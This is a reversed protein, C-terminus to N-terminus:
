RSRPPARVVLKLSRQTGQAEIIVEMSRGTPLRSWERSALQEFIAVSDVLRGQLSVPADGERLGARAAPSNPAVAIIRLQPSPRSQEELLPFARVVTMGQFTAMARYSELAADFASRELKYQVFAEVQGGERPLLEVQARVPAAQAGQQALFRQAIWQRTAAGAPERHELRSRIFDYSPTGALQGLMEEVLRALADIRAQEVSAEATSAIGGRGVVLVETDGLIFPREAWAPPLVVKPPPAAVPPPVAAVPAPDTVPAPAPPGSRLLAWALLAGVAVLALAGAGVVAPGPWRRSPVGAPVPAAVPALVPAPPSVASVPGSAPGSSPESADVPDQNALFSLLMRSSQFTLATNCRRCLVSPDKGERLTRRERAVDILATRSTACQACRGNLVASEVRVAGLNSALVLSELLVQPCARLRVREVEPQTALERLAHEFRRAVDPTTTAVGALDLVVEGELGDFVFSWRVAELRNRLVLTTVRGEVHKEVADGSDAQAEGALAARLTQRVEDPVKEVPRGEGLKSLFAFYSAPEDDFVGEGQCHPCTAAPARGAQLPAADRECDLLREFSQKCATCQYPAYFSVVMGGGSFSRIMNLQSVVPESCRALYLRSLGSSAESLMELWARVGFSTIREVGGLELAVVGSLRKGLTQGPFSETLRGQISVVTLEGARHERLSHTSSTAAPRIRVLTDVATRQSASHSASPSAESSSVQAPAPAPAPSPAPAPVSALLPRPAASAIATTEEDLKPRRTVSTSASNRAQAAPSESLVTLTMTQNHLDCTGATYPSLEGYSYFGAVQTGPPLVGLVAEVEEETREGLVLRRGVCSVAIALAQSPQAGGSPLMESAMLAASSAGGVLRDFNAKMLQVSAGQPIDGAFTMSNKAADVALLTRVLFKEEDGPQRLALPFLLGTAPLGSAKDGLYQKYLELAPKGDLEHLVNGESRTVKRQPGFADWGGKSGHSILLHDGYLGVAVVLGSQVKDRSLVWTRQFRSGDGALGGTVVVSPDLVSNFGRVLESGNVKLGESLVFVARLGQRDLKRALAEGASFSQAADTVSITASALETHAFRVVAVSLSHDFVETGSIEGSTSCGLLQSQPFARALETLPGPEDLLETAGFALVLTRESDLATPLPSTWTRRPLLYACSAVQFVEEASPKLAPTRTSVPAVSPTRLSPPSTRAPASVTAEARRVNTRLSSAAAELMKRMAAASQFRIEPNKELGRRIVEMLPRPLHPIDPVAKNLHGNFATETTHGFPTSGACLDFLTAALAYLDARHDARGKSIMEPCMYAPTGIVLNETRQEGGLATLVSLGFDCLKVERQATLLLNAPKIDYHVIGLSHAHELGALAASGIRIAEEPPLVRGPMRKRYHRVDEGEVFEMVLFEWSADREYNYARTINPHTLRISALAESRLNALAKAVEANGSEYANVLLVKIAVRQELFSDTARFVAGM